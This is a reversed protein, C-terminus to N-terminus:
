SKCKKETVPSVAAFRLLFTNPFAADNIKVVETDQFGGAQMAGRIGGQDRAGNFAVQLETGGRFDIGFNLVRGRWFHNIPLMMISMFVLFLSIGLLVNMRGVFDFNHNPKILERFNTQPAM